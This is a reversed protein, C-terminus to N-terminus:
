LLPLLRTPVLTRVSYNNGLNSTGRHTGESPLLERNTETNQARNQARKANSSMGGTEKRDLRATHNCQANITDAAANYLDVHVSVPSPRYRTPQQCTHLPKLLLPFRRRIQLKFLKRSIQLRARDAVLKPPFVGCMIQIGIYADLNEFGRSCSVSHQHGQLADLLFVAVPFAKRHRGHPLHPDQTLQFVLHLAHTNSSPPLPPLPGEMQRASARLQQFPLRLCAYRNKYTDDDFMRLNSGRTCTVSAKTRISEVGTSHTREAIATKTHCSQLPQAVAALKRSVATSNSYACAEGGTTSCVSQARRVWM